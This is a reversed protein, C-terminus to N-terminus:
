NYSFITHAVRFHARKSAEPSKWPSIYTHPSNTITSFHESLRLVIAAAPPLRNVYERHTTHKHQDVSLNIASGTLRASTSSENHQWRHLKGDCLCFYISARYSFLSLNAPSFRYIQVSSLAHYTNAIYISHKNRMWKSTLERHLAFLLFFSFLNWARHYNFWKKASDASSKRSKRHKMNWSKCVLEFM